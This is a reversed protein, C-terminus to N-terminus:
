DNELKTMWFNLTLEKRFLVEDNILKDMENSMNVSRLVPLYICRDLAEAFFPTIVAKLDSGVCCNFGIM